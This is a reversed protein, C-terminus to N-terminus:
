AAQDHFYRGPTVGLAKRFMAIFASQSDYGLDLAVTTVPAGDALLTLAALLRAQQRWQGFTMGTDRVFLRALTRASAGVRRSWDALTRGDAPDAALADAIPRLRPDTVLPLHLPAVPLTRIQDLIVAMLRGDPGDEDYHAPLRAAARILERLLPSVTVVCCQGPLGTAAAPELYLNHMVAKASVARVQHPTEPPVWVARQPPVVWLGRDTDVAIVGDVAYVLQARRHHHRDTAEGQRHDLAKVVLPRPIRDREGM